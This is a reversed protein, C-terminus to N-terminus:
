DNSVEQVTSLEASICSSQPTKKVKQKHIQLVGTRTNNKHPVRISDNRDSHISAAKSISLRKIHAAARKRNDKVEMNSLLYCWEKHTICFYEKNKDELEDQM